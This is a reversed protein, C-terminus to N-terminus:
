AFNETSLYNQINGPTTVVWIIQRRLINIVNFINALTTNLNVSTTSRYNIKLFAIVLKYKFFFLMYIYIFLEGMEFYLIYIHYKNCIM